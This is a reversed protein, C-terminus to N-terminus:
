CFGDELTSERYLLLGEDHPNIDPYILTEEIGCLRGRHVQLVNGVIMVRVPKYTFKDSSDDVTTVSFPTVEPVAEFLRGNGIMSLDTVPELGHLKNSLFSEEEDFGGDAMDGVDETSKDLSDRPSKLSNKKCLFDM